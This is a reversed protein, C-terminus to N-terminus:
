KLFHPRGRPKKEKPNKVKEIKKLPDYIIGKIKKRMMDKDNKYRSGLPKGVVQEYEARVAMLEQDVDAMIACITSLVTGQNSCRGRTVWLGLQGQSIPPQTYM